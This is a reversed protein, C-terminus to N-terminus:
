PINKETHNSKIEIKKKKKLPVPKKLTLSFNWKM